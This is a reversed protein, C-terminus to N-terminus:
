KFRFDVAVQIWTDKKIDRKINWYPVTKLVENDLSSFGSSKVIKVDKIDGNPSLLFKVIVEGQQNALIAARPYNPSKYNLLKQDKILAEASTDEIGDIGSSVQQQTVKNINKQKDKNEEKQIIKKNTINKNKTKKQTTKKKVQINREIFEKNPNIINNKKISLLDKKEDFENKEINNKDSYEINIYKPAKTNINIYSNSSNIDFLFIFGTIFTIHLFLSISLFINFM